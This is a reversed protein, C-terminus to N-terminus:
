RRKLSHLLRETDKELGTLERELDLYQRETTGNRKYKAAKHQLVLLRAKLRSYESSTLDGRTGGSEIKSSVGELREEVYLYSEAYVMSALVSFVTIICVLKFSIKLL